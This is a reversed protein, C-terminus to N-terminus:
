RNVCRDLAVRRRARLSLTGDIAEDAAHRSLLSVSIAAIFGAPVAVLSIAAPKLGGWNAISDSSGSTAGRVAQAQPDSAGRFAAELDAFQKCRRRRRCGVLSGFHPRIRRALCARWAFLSGRDFAGVLMAAVAGMSNMPRWHLGLVLPVFIGAALLRLDRPSCCDAASRRSSRLCSPWCWFAGGLSASRFDLGTRKTEMSMRVETDAVGLGAVLANGALLSALLGRVAASIAPCSKLGSIVPAAVVFGDTTFDLDQLRLFGRQDPAKACAASSRTRTESNQECVKVWGLASADAFAQSDGRERHGEVDGERFRHPQLGRAAAPQRDVMAVAVLAVATRRVAAGPAVVAQSVHRGLLQPMAVVGFAVALLLGAFNRMSLQLFPSSMPTLSGVDSSVISSWRRTSTRM